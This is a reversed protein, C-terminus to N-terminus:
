SAGIRAPQAAAALLVHALADAEQVRRGHAAGLAVDVAFGAAAPLDWRTWRGLAAGINAAINISRERAGDAGDARSCQDNRAADDGTAPATRQHQAVQDAMAAHSRDLRQPAGRGTDGPTSAGATNPYESYEVLSTEHYKAFMIAPARGEPSIPYEVRQRTSTCVSFGPIVETRGGRM